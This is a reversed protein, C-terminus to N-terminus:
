SGVVMWRAIIEYEDLHNHMIRLVVWHVVCADNPTNNLIPVVSPIKWANPIHEDNLLKNFLFTVEPIM